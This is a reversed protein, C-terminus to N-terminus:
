CQEFHRCPLWLWSHEFLALCAGLSLTGLFGLHSGHILLSACCSFLASPCHGGSTCQAFASLFIEEGSLFLIQNQLTVSCSGICNHCILVISPLIPPLQQALSHTNAPRTGKITAVCAQFQNDVMSMHSANNPSYGERDGSANANFRLRLRRRLSRPSRSVTSAGGTSGNAILMPAEKHRPVWLCSMRGMLM